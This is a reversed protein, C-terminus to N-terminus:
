PGLGLSQVIWSATTKSAAGTWAGTIVGYGNVTVIEPLLAGLQYKDRCWPSLHTLVVVGPEPVEAIFVPSPHPELDVAVMRIRDHDLRDLRALKRWLVIDPSCFGCRQNFALIATLGQGNYTIALRRGSPDLGILPPVVRGPPLQLGRVQEAVRTRLM